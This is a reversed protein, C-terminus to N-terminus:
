RHWYCTLGLILLFAGIVAPVFAMRFSFRRFEMEDPNLYIPLVYKEIDREDEFWNATKVWETFYSYLENNMDKLTGQEYITTTGYTNEEGILYAYTEESIATFTDLDKANVLIGIFYVEDGSFAPIIFYYDVDRSNSYGYFSSTETMKAFCDFAMYIEAELNSTKTLELIDTDEAYLDVPQRYAAIGAWGESILGCMGLFLLIVGAFAVYNGYTKLFWKM